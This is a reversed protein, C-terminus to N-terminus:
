YKPDSNVGVKIEGDYILAGLLKEPAPNAKYRENSYYDALTGFGTMVYHLVHSSDGALGKQLVKRPAYTVLLEEENVLNALRPEDFVSAALLFDDRHIIPLRVVGDLIPSEVILYGYPRSESPTQVDDKPDITTGARELELVKFLHRIIETWSIDLGIESYAPRVELYPYEYETGNQGDGFSGDATLNNLVAYLDPCCQQCYSMFAEDEGQEIEDYSMVVQESPINLGAAHALDWQEKPVVAHSREFIDMLIDPCISGLAAGDNAYQWALDAAAELSIKNMGCELFFRTQDGVFGVRRRYDRNVHDDFTTSESISHWMLDNALASFYREVAGPPGTAGLFAHGFADLNLHHKAGLIGGLQFFYAWMGLCQGCKLYPKGIFPKNQEQNVRARSIIRAYGSLKEM